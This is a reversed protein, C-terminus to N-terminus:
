EERLAANPDMGAARRAPLYGAAAAVTLLLVITLGIATPDHEGVGFLLSRMAGTVGLSIILGTFVGGAALKFAQRIIMQLVQEPRAGLAIRIGIEKRRQAVLQRLLGYVALASLGLALLAFASLLASQFRRWAHFRSVGEGVSVVPGLIAARELEHLRTRIGPKLGEPDLSTRVLIEMRNNPFQSLSGFMQSIVPTELGQRHMDGVVGVVTIWPISGPGTVSGFTFRKGVPDDGPFFTRAMTENILTVKPTTPGDLDSLMRGRLLPAGLTQFCDGLVADGILQPTPDEPRPPAKGEVTIVTDPNLEFFLQQIAGASEVGPLAHMQKIAERFYLAGRAQDYSAPLSVRVALVGESEFGPHTQQVNIFSRLLLVTGIVLATAVALQGVVLFARANAKDPLSGPGRKLAANPRIASLGFAPFAGCVLVTFLALCFSFALVPIDLHVREVHPLDLPLTAEIARLAVSGVFVGLLGALTALVLNEVLLQQVLRARSGGISARIAFERERAVGRALLLGAVNTCAIILIGVVSAFLLSLALPISKGTMQERLPVVSAGLGPPVDARSARFRESLLSLSAQAEVPTVGTRLRGVIKYLDSGVSTKVRPWYTSVTHPEWMQVDKSPFRFERPMVGIIQSRGGEMLIEQGIVNPLGGFRTQWFGYSIVLVRARNDEEVQSFSRGLIPAVGLLPFLNASVKGIRVEEAEERSLLTGTESRSILAMGQFAPNSARWNEYALYSSGDRDISQNPITTWIMVLEGPARFPLPRIVVENLYASIATVAGIGLALTVIAIASTAPTRALMRVALGFDRTLSEVVVIGRTDRYEEKIKELAGFSRRAELYARESDM